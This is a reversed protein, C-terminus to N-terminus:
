MLVCGTRGAATPGLAPLVESGGSWVRRIRRTATIDEDPRGDVLVLDARLGRAIRGRDPLNFHKAAVSTAARLAEIPPLGARVLLELEHHLSKGPVIVLIGSNHSDTGAMIPVGAERMATVSDLSHQFNRKSGLSWWIWSLGWLAWSNAMAEMMTLTPVAVINKSAMQDTINRDLAREMPTHTLIGFGAQLGRSFADYQATHAVTMKGRRRAEIQIQDLVAQEHGPADAIIFQAAEDTNHVAHDASVGVFKLLKGHRSNEEYAPLSSSLWTTPTKAARLILYKEPPTCAMDCVTTVGFSACSALQDEDKIHVHCDILGPLLTCGTGDIVSAGNDTVDDSIKTGDIAVTKPGDIVEGDFVRVNKIITKAM